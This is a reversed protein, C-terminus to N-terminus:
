IPGVIFNTVQRNSLRILSTESYRLLTRRCNYLMPSVCPFYRSRIEAPYTNTNRRVGELPPEKYRIQIGWQPMREGGVIPDCRGLWIEKGVVYYIHYLTTFYYCVSFRVSLNVRHM